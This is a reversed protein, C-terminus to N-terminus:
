TLEGYYRRMYPAVIEVIALFAEDCVTGAIQPAYQYLDGPSGVSGEALLGAQLATRDEDHAPEIRQLYSSLKLVDEVSLHGEVNIQKSGRVDVKAIEGYFQGSSAIGRIFWRYEPDVGYRWKLVVPLKMIMGILTSEGALAYNSWERMVKNYGAWVSGRLM